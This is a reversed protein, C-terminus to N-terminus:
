GKFMFFFMEIFMKCLLNVEYDLGNDENQQEEKNDQEVTLRRLNGFRDIWSQTM